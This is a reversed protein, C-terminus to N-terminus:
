SAYTCLVEKRIKRDGEIVFLYHFMGSSVLERYIPRRQLDEPGLGHATALFRVGCHSTRIMAEVDEEATIEDLAIWHPNMSRTLMQIGEAKGVATLIDTTPGLDFQPYGNLCAAVESREDILCIRQRFRTSLQRIVDRLLTTKGRGPPGMCLASGPHEWLSDAVATGFGTVARAIRLNVSSIDRLSVLSGQRYVGTGCVGLRHGGPLILFGRRLMERVAYPSRQTCRDLLTQMLEEDAITCLVKTKHRFCLRIEQGKHLRIEELGEWQPDELSHETPLLALLQKMPENMDM